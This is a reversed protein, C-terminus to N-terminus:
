NKQYYLRIIDCEKRDIAKIIDDFEDDFEPEFNLDIGANVPSPLDVVEHVAVFCPNEGLSCLLLFNM